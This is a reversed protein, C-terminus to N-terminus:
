PERILRLAVLGFAAAVIGISANAAWVSWSGGSYIGDNGGVVPVLVSGVVVALATGAAIAGAVRRAAGRAVATCAVQAIVAILGVNTFTSVVISFARGGPGLGGGGSFDHWTAITRALLAVAILVTLLVWPGPHERVPVAEAPEPYPSSEVIDTM